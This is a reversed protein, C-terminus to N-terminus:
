GHIKRFEEVIGKIGESNLEDSGKLANIVDVIGGTFGALESVVDSPKNEEESPDPTDIEVPESPDDPAVPEDVVDPIIVGIQKGDPPADMLEELGVSTRLALRSDASTIEGDFDMDAYMLSLQNTIRELDVAHRLIARSDYADVTLDSNVDGFYRKTWNLETMKMYSTYTVYITYLNLANKQELPDKGRGGLIPNAIGSIAVAMWDVGTYASVIRILDYFSVAFTYDISETLETLRGESDFVAQAFANEFTFDQFEIESLKGDRDAANPDGSVVVPNLVPSPLDFLKALASDPGDELSVSPFELWMVTTEGEPALLSGGTKETKLIFDDKATLASVYREGLKPVRNDRKEGYSFEINKPMRPVNQITNFLTQSIGADSAFCADLLWALYKKAEDGLEEGSEKTGVAADAMAIHSEMKMRPRQTKIGNASANFTELLSAREEADIVPEALASAFLGACPLLLAACLAMCLLRVSIRKKM